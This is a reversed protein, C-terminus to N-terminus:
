IFNLKEENNLIKAPLSFEGKEINSIDDITVNFTPHYHMEFSNKNFEISKIM